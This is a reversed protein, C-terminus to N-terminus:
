KKENDEKRKREGGKAEHRRMRKEERERERERIASAMPRELGFRSERGTEGREESGIMSYM